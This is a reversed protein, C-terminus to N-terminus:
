FPRYPPRLSYGFDLVIDRHNICIDLQHAEDIFIRKLEAISHKEFNIKDTVLSIIKYYDETCTYHWYFSNGIYKEEGWSHPKSGKFESAYKDFPVGLVIFSTHSFSDIRELSGYHLRIDSKNVFIGRTAAKQIFVDRLHTLNFSYLKAYVNRLSIYKLERNYYEDDEDDYDNERYPEGLNIIEFYSDELRDFISNYNLKKAFVDIYTDYDVGFILYKMTDEDYNKGILNKLPNYVTIEYEREPYEAHEADPNLSDCCWKEFHRVSDKIWMAMKIRCYAILKDSFYTRSSDYKTFDSDVLVLRPEGWEYSFTIDVVFYTGWATLVWKDSCPEENMIQISPSISVEINNKSRIDISIDYESFM